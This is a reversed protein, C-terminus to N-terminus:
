ATVEEVAAVFAEGRLEYNGFMDFSACAPSLLIKDGPQALKVAERVAEVMSGAFVKNVKGGAADAIQNADQGILVLGRVDQLADHLPSFDAGKGVGGAVLVIKNDSNKLGELAALTAGVNTGKSDNYFEIEKREAVWQCRHELGSFERLSELMADTPLEVAQGLALAALANEINHRGPMKIDGTPMLTKFEYALYEVGGKVILGFGFRDPKNLGFTVQKVGTALPPATLPDARNTIVTQAGFYVRQKAMHYGALSDYRDMHDESVNLVTAAKANLNDNGNLGITELQFSSLELVYLAKEPRELLELVPTGINGAIAVDVGAREAMDGVLSTVTSKANSGTIAVVPATIHRLFLGIDGVVSVGAKLAEQLAPEALPVGPSVVIEDVALLTETNLTGLEVVSGAFEENFAALGAPAERTDLMVFAEQRAALHRAVSLGTLGLGVIATLRSKAILNSM